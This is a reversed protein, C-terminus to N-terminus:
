RSGTKLGELQENLRKTTKAGTRLKKRVSSMKNRFEDLSTETESLRKRQETLMKKQETIIKELNEINKRQEDRVALQSNVEIDLVAKKAPLTELEEKLQEVELELAIIKEKNVIAPALEGTKLLDIIPLVTEIPLAYSAVRGARAINIGVAEGSLDLLPGGCTNSQLMSDHQLALPFDKRRRSLKSGMSNQQNSRQSSPSLKEREALTVGVQIEEKYRIVDLTVRDGADFQELIDQLDKVEKVPQGDIKFIVDQVLLGSIDAPSRNVVSRIRIGDKDEVMTIGIFARSREIQRLKLTSIVGVATDGDQAKPSVVWNGVENTPSESWRIVNLAEADIKLLALDTKSHIGIVEAEFEEDGVQCKLERKLESAKTLIFGDADIITGLAVQKGGSLIQVTATEMSRSVPEFISIFDPSVRSFNPKKASTKKKNTEKKAKPEDEKDEDTDDAKAKNAKSKKAKPEATATQAVAMSSSATLVITLAILINRSIKKM